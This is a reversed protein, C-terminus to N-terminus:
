QQQVFGQQPPVQIFSQQQPQQRMGMVDGGLTAVTQQIRETIDSHLQSRSAWQNSKDGCVQQVAELYQAGSQVLVRSDQLSRQVQATKQLSEALLADKSDM